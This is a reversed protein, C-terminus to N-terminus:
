FFSTFFDQDVKKIELWTVTFVAIKTQRIIMLYADVRSQHILCCLTSMHAENQSFPDEPNRVASRRSQNRM